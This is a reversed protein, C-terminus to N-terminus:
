STEKNKMWRIFGVINRASRVIEELKASRESCGWQSSVAASSDSYHVLKFGLVVLDPPLETPPDYPAASLDPAPKKPKSPAPAPRASYNAVTGPRYWKECASCQAHEDRSPPQPANCHPCAAGSQVSM